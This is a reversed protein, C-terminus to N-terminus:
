AYQNSARGSNHPLLTKLYNFESKDLLIHVRKLLINTENYAQVKFEKRTIKPPMFISLISFLCGLGSEIDEFDPIEGDQGFDSGFASVKINEDQNFKWRRKIFGFFYYKSVEFSNSFVVFDKVVIISITILAVIIFYGLNDYHYIFALSCIAALFFFSLRLSLLRKNIHRRYIIM